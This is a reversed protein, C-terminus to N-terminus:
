VLEMNSKDRLFRISTTEVLLGGNAWVGYNMFIDTHELALHWVTYTGESCWPEAKDDLFAMLRYKKDTVFIKGLTEKTKERQETSLEDVLLSHAGTIYLDDTLEPYVDKKCVYLREEVREATGVNKFSSRGILEVKKYGDRATKVLSGKRLKEIEVYTEKGDVLCLLKSGELFCPNAPYMYYNGDSNLAQGAMFVVVQSSTGTSNPAIRWSSFGGYSGVTYSSSSGIAGTESSADAQTAYYYVVTPSSGFPYISYYGDSNLAAGTLYNSGQSSTGSSNSSILWNSFGNETTLTFSNCTTFFSNTSGDADTINSYYSLVPSPYMRYSNSLLNFTNSSPLITGAVQTNSYQFDGDNTRWGLIGSANSLTYTTTFALVNSDYGADNANAFYSIPVYSMYLDYSGNNSLVTGSPIGDNINSDAYGILNISTGSSYPSMQWNSFGNYTIGVTFDTTNSFPAIGYIPDISSRYYSVSYPPTPPPYSYVYYVQSSNSGILVDGAVYSNSGGGPTAPSPGTSNSAVVWNSYGSATELIYANVRSGTQFLQYQESVGYLLANSESAYYLITIYNAM